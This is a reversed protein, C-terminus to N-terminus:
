DIENIKVHNVMLSESEILVGVMCITSDLEHWTESSFVRTLLSLLIAIHM